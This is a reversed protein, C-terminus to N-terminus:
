QAGIVNGLGKNGLKPHYYSGARSDGPVKVDKM